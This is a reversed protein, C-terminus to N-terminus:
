GRMGARLLRYNQSNNPFFHGVRAKTELTSKIGALYSLSSITFKRSEVFDVGVLEKLKIRWQQTAQYLISVDLKLYATLYDGLTICGAESFLRRAEQIESESLPIDTLDSIWDPSAAEPLGRQDLSKVSKLARFPFHAKSQEMGFLKGFDRLNTSPALLKTVDRFSIGSRRASISMVKNGRKEIAPSYGAEFMQPVLYSLLLVHDYGSRFFSLVFRLQISGGEGEVSSSSSAVVVVIIL